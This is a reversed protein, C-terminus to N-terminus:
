LLQIRKAELESKTIGTEYEGYLRVKTKETVGQPMVVDHDIEVTIQQKGDSFTYHKADVQST